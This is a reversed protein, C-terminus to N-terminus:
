TFSHAGCFCVSDLIAAWHSGGTYNPRDDDISFRGLSESTDSISQPSYHSEPEPTTEPKTMSAIDSSTTSRQMLSVVLDELHESFPMLILTVYVGHAPTSSSIWSTKSLVYQNSRPCGQSQSGHKNESCLGERSHYRCPSFYM